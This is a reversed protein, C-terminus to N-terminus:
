DHSRVVTWCAQNTNQDANRYESVMIAEEEPISESLIYWKHGETVAKHLAGDDTGSWVLIIFQM